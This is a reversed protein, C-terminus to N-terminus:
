RKRRLSDMLQQQHRENERKIEEGQQEIQRITDRVAAAKREAEAAAEERERRRNERQEEAAQERERQKEIERLRDQDDAYQQRLRKSEEEREQEVAEQRDRKEQRVRASAAAENRSKAMQDFVQNNKKELDDFTKNIVERQRGFGTAMGDAKQKVGARRAEERANFAAQAEGRAQEAQVNQRRVRQTFEEGRAVQVERQAEERASDSTQKHNPTDESGSAVRAAAAQAQRQSILFPNEKAASPRSATQESTRAAFPNPKAASSPAAAASPSAAQSYVKKFPNERVEPALANAHLYSGPPPASIQQNFPNAAPAASRPKGAERNNGATNYTGLNIENMIGTTPEAASRAQSQAAAVFPNPRPSPPTGSATDGGSSSSPTHAVAGPDAVGNQVGDMGQTEATVTAFITGIPGGPYEHTTETGKARMYMEVKGKFTGKSGGCSWNITVLKKNETENVIKFIITSMVQESLYKADVVVGNDGGARTYETWGTAARLTLTAFILLTSLFCIRNKMFPDYM